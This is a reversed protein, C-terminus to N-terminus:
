GRRRGGAGGYGRGGGSGPLAPQQISDYYLGTGDLAVSQGGYGGHGAGSGSLPSGASRGAGPSNGGDYGRGNVNITGGPTVTVDGTITLNLGSGATTLFSHTLNGGDLVQLSAFSHLGDVTLTCNSIVINLGDYTCVEPKPLIPAITAV